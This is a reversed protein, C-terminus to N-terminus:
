YKPDRKHRRQLMRGVVTGGATHALRELEALPEEAPEADGHLRLGVLVVRQATDGVDMSDRPDTM